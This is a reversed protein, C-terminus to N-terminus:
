GAPQRWGEESNGPEPQTHRVAYPYSQTAAFYTRSVLEGMIGTTLFQVAVVVLLVGILLLPRTGIDEGFFVKLVFLYGLILGGIGGFLLGIRGFFHGPRTLFRLFFYVSLLDLIVRYTRSLGYKSSGHVRARHHVVEETIRNPSTHVSMWAPIFRHMDGYLRVSRISSGRYVKLSCGYDHLRVGTIWGILGNAIRSPIKRLLLNDRRDKRWGVVLDLDEGLLREVMRSIDAPDNQLDGDMTAIVDGRAADIGAQMAATQGYNRQLTLVRVHPGYRQAAAGLSDSTGDASGDDVLILEWPHQWADLARHISEILPAVNDAENYLPVVLSLRPSAVRGLAPSPAPADASM